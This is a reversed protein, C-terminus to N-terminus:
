RCQTSPMRLLETLFKIWTKNPNQLIYKYIITIKNYINHIYVFCSVLHLFVISYLIKDQQQGFFTKNATHKWM